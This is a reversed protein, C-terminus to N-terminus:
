MFGSMMKKGLQRTICRGKRVMMRGMRPDCCGVATLSAAAGILGGLVM